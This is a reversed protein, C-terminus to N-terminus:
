RDGAANRGPGSSRWRVALSGEASCCSLGVGCRRFGGARRRIRCARPVGFWGWVVANVVRFLGVLVAVVRRRGDATGFVVFDRGIVHIPRSKTLWERPSDHVTALWYAPCGTSKDERTTVLTGSPRTLGPTSEYLAVADAKVEDSYDKVAM